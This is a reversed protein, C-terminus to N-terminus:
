RRPKGKSRARRVAGDGVEQADENEVELHDRAVRSDGDAEGKGRRRVPRRWPSQRRRCAIVGNAGTRRVDDEPLAKGGRREDCRRRTRCQRRRRHRCLQGFANRKTPEVRRRLIGHWKCRKRRKGSSSAECCTRRRGVADREARARQIEKRGIPVIVKGVDLSVESM